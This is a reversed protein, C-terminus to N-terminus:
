ILINQSVLTFKNENLTFFTVTDWNFHHILAIIAENHSSATSVTRYFLPFEKRDSLSPSTSGFSIQPVSFLFAQRLM